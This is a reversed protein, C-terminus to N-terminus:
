YKGHLAHSIKDGQQKAMSARIKVSGDKCDHRKIVNGHDYILSLLGMNQPDILFEYEAILGTLKEAIIEKLGDLGKKRLASVMVISRGYEDRHHSKDHDTFFRANEEPSLLDAKNWVEVIRRDDEPDIGLQRLIAEVNRAQEEHNEEAVDRVHLILDAEEVEELTARFAAILHTPLDAIFGVTDSLLAKGSLQGPSTAEGTSLDVERMTTDLTAFLLDKAFINSDTLANFLTSKGANTYGVLAVIPWPVKKRGSRHLGRTKRIKELRNELRGIKDRIMRRDAEMQTEGPGGVFGLGGRQRELHTWSRVLRGLQYKLHALEVQVRGENTQARASFIELILGTRDLVKCQWAKELNQQQVPSLSTDVIALSAEQKEIEQGLNDVTGSGFLTSPKIARISAELCDKVDLDIAHALGTIEAKRANVDRSSIQHNSHSSTQAEGNEQLKKSYVPVILVTSEAREAIEAEWQFGNETPKKVM